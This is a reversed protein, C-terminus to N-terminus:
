GRELILLRHEFDDNAQEIEIVRQELRNIAENYRGLLSAAKQLNNANNTAVEALQLLKESDQRRSSM